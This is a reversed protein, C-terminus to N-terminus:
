VVKAVIRETAAYLDRTLALKDGDGVADMIATLDGMSEAARIKDRLGDLDGKKDKSM